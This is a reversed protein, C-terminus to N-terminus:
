HGHHQIFSLCSHFLFDLLLKNALFKLNSNSRIDEFGNSVLDLLKTSTHLRGKIHFIEVFDVKGDNTLLNRLCICFFFIKKQLLNKCHLYMGQNSCQKHPCEKRQVLQGVCITKDKAKCERIRSMIEPDSLSETCSKECETWCGWKGFNIPPPCDKNSEEECEETGEEIKEDCTSEESEGGRKKCWLYKTPRFVKEGSVSCTSKCLGKYVQVKDSIKLM